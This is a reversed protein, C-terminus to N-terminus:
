LILVCLKYVLNQCLNQVFIHVCNKGAELVLFLNAEFYHSEM